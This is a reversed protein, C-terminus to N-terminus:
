KGLTFEQISDREPNSWAQDSYTLVAKSVLGEEKVEETFGKTHRGFFEKAGEPLKEVNWRAFNVPRGFFKNEEYKKADTNKLVDYIKGVIKEQFTEISEEIEKELSVFVFISKPTAKTFKAAISFPRLKSIEERVIKKIENEYPRAKEKVKELSINEFQVPAGLTFHLSENKYLQLVEPEFKNFKEREAKVHSCIEPTEKIPVNISLYSNSFKTILTLLESNERFQYSPSYIM